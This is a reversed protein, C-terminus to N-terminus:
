AAFRGAPRGGCGESKPVTTNFLLRKCNMDLLVM